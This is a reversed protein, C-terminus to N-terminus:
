KMKKAANSLLIMLAQTEDSPSYTDPLGAFLSAEDRRAMLRLRNLEIRAKATNIVGSQLDAFLDHTIVLADVMAGRFQEISPMSDTEEEGAEEPIEFIDDFAPIARQAELAAYISDFKVSQRWFALSGGIVGIAVAAALYRAIHRAFHGRAKEKRWKEELAFERRETEARKEDAFSPCERGEPNSHLLKPLIRKWVPDYTAVEEAIDTRADCWMGTLLRYTIVGLAYWDSKETAQAGMELEPAMYGISGMVPTAGNRVSFITQVADIVTKGDGQPDFIRSIGFDTLIAHGDPGIMVNQLKLDRHIVGQAHIYGLADRMDDYWRAVTEEDAEGPKLQALTRTQGDPDTVLDMVFFPRGTAADEDIDVVKVVRPHNLKALLKGEVLFRERVEKDDKPYSYMKLAYRTALRPNEVEYVESMGGAGLKRIVEYEGIKM